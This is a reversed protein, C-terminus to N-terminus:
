LYFSRQRTKTLGSAKELATYSYQGVMLLDLSGDGNIDYVLPTLNQDIDLDTYSTISLDFMNDGIDYYRNSFDSRNSLFDHSLVWGGQGDNLYVEPLYDVSVDFVGASFGERHKPVLLDPLGDRNFDRVLLDYSYLDTSGSGQVYNNLFSLAGQSTFEWPTTAADESQYTFAVPEGISPQLDALLACGSFSGNKYDLTYTLMGTDVTKLRKTYGTKRGERYHLTPDQDTTHSNAEYTFRITRNVQLSDLYSISDLYAVGESELLSKDYTYTVTNGNTDTMKEMIWSFTGKTTTAAATFTLETGDAEYVRWGAADSGEVQLTGGEINGTADFVYEKGNLTLIFTDRADFWPVGQRNNRRIQNYGILEWGSGLFKETTLESNYVLALTPELGNIGAPLELPYRYGFNGQFFPNDLDIRNNETNLLLRDSVAERNMGWGSVACILFLILVVLGSLWKQYTRQM